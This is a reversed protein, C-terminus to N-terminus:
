APAVQKKADGELFVSRAPTGIGMGIFIVAVITFMRTTHRAHKRLFLGEILQLQAALAVIAAIGSEVAGLWILGSADELISSRLTIVLGAGAIGAATLQDLIKSQLEFPLEAPIAV